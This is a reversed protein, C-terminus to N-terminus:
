PPNRGLFFGSVNEATEASSNPHPLRPADAARPKRSATANSETSARAGRDRAYVSNARQEGAERSAKIGFAWKLDLEFILIPRNLEFSRKCRRENTSGTFEHLWPYSSPLCSSPFPSSAPSSPTGQRCQEGPSPPRSRAATPASAASTLRTCASRRSGSPYAAAAAGHQCRWQRAIRESSGGGVVM